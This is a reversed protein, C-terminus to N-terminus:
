PPAIENLINQFYAPFEMITETARHRDQQIAVRASSRDRVGPFQESLSKAVVRDAFGTEFFALAAETNLGYRIKRQLVCLMKHLEADVDEALDAITAVIMAGEYGLGNECLTVVDEVKPRRRNGGIRINNETLQLCIEGFSLENMWADTIAPIASPDSLSTISNHKNYISLIPAIVNFLSGNRASNSLIELNENLWARINTVDTPALPSRRLSTRLDETAAGDGLSFAINQFLAELQPKQEESAIHYAFTNRALETAHEARVGIEFDLHALLFSAIGHVVRVRDRLFRRFEAQPLSSDAASEYAILSEMTDRDDFVFGHLTSVNLTLNKPPNGYTFPDFISLIRSICPETNRADLLEKALKWRWRQRFDLKGDFIAPEAFIISGETHMGARGARGILNHFDRVLIRDAGQYVGTIILYKIPLNVGQALTSTCVVFKILGEKMAHEISLRLGHPVSAHHPFIGREAAKTASATSGLHKDFLRTIKDVEAGDSIESPSPFLETRSFIDVASNCLNAATDKRGCFIAIGGKTVLKLALYLGISIGNNRDPFFRQKRERPLRPLVVDEIIRPVFFEGEDPDLPNVYELRGIRDRWSAFAISRATPALGDGHVVAQENGLLWGALKPANSIVASILVVQTSTPILLRLSTLLLEYAPGRAASDFQHGEDYILLGIQRALEPSRRLLYLLKEPTVVLIEKQEWLNEINLDLQYNDTAENLTVNEGAFAIALDSSIDHCLSRFPSVIVALDARGTLFASRLILETARTKGASTPMQIIAPEGRLIGADCIRQQAPWLELPFFPRRLISRWATLDVSSARPLLSRSANAVKKRCIASAVDAYLLERGNGEAYARTRIDSLAVILEDQEIDGFFYGGLSKLVIDPLDDYRDREAIPTFDSKLLKYCLLVLGSALATSPMTSRRVLVKAAGPNDSLYFSAAALVPFEESVQNDLKADNYAEFYTAAFRLADLSTSQEEDRSNNSAVEAAADGLLGVALSFLIEPRISLNIHHELPVEYEYMKAKARTTSLLRRAAREPKM